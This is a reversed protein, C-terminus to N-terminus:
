PEPQAEKLAHGANAWGDVGEPYWLVTEYGYEERARKAANWSMWCESKCYFVVPARKDSGTLRALNRRFYSDTEESLKGYGVNPLWPSGPLGDHRKDRWLTGPPLNAPKVPRPMVDIFLAKRDRWLEYARATSVVEVGKLTEPTPALYDNMRYSDPEVSLFPDNGGDALAAEGLGLALAAVLPTLKRLATV